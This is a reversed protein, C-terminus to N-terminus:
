PKPHFYKQNWQCASPARQDTTSAQFGEENPLQQTRADTLQVQHWVPQVQVDTKQETSIWPNVGYFAQLQPPPTPQRWLKLYDQPTELTTLTSESSRSSEPCDTDVHQYYDPPKQETIIQLPVVIPPTQVYTVHKNYVPLTQSPLCLKMTQNGLMADQQQQQKKQEQLQEMQQQLLMQQEQLYQEQEQLYRQSSTTPQNEFTNPFVSSRSPGCFRKAEHVDPFSRKRQGSCEAKLEPSITRHPITTQMQCMSEQMTQLQEKMMELADQQSTIDAQLVRTRVQLQEKFKQMLNLEHGGTNSAFPFSASQARLSASVTASSLIEQVVPGESNPSGEVYDPENPDMSSAALSNDLTVANVSDETDDTNDSSVSFELDVPDKLKEPDVEPEYGFSQLSGVPSDSMTELSSTRSNCSSDSEIKIVHTAEQPGYEEVTVIDSQDNSTTATAKDRLNELRSSRIEGQVTRISWTALDDSSNQANRDSDRKTYIEKLIQGRIICVMGVLYFRDEWPLVSDTAACYFSSPINAGFLVFPENQLTIDKINLLFKAYEYDRNSNQGADGRKLHCCFEVHRGVSSLFPQKLTIKQYVENKEEDPLLMLLKKGRVEDPAYGLLSINEDIYIMLGDTSLIIMFGDLSTLTLQNFDDYDRFRPMWSPKACEKNQSIATTDNKMKYGRSRDGKVPYGHNKLMARLESFLSGCWEKKRSKGRADSNDGQKEEENM